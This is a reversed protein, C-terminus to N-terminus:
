YGLFKDEHVVSHSAEIVPRKYVNSIRRYKIFTEKSSFFLCDNYGFLMFTSIVMCFFLIGHLLVSCIYPFNQANRAEASSPVSYQVGSHDVLLCYWLHGRIQIYLSFPWFFGSTVHSYDTANFVLMLEYLDFLQFTSSSSSLSVSSSSSPWTSSLTV